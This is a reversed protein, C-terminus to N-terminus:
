GDADEAIVIFTFTWFSILNNVLHYYFANYKGESFLMIIGMKIKLIVWKETAMDNGITGNFNTLNNEVFFRYHWCYLSTSSMNVSFNDGSWSTM